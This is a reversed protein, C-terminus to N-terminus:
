RGRFAPPRKEAFARVGELLDESGLARARHTEIAALDASTPEVGRSLRRIADLMGAVALPAHRAVTEAVRVAEEEARGATVVDVLGVRSAEDANLSEATLFLRQAQSPGLVRVFRRLGSASYVLGLRAPPMALRVSSSAVRLTCAMALELAGGMCAGEIAAILPVPCGELADAPERIPDLGSARESDDIRSIDFGASFAGGAPDGALVVCRVPQHDDASAAPLAAVLDALLERTLANRKTPNSLRLIRVPGRDEVLVAM